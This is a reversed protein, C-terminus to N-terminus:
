QWSMLRNQYMLGRDSGVFGTLRHDIHCHDV